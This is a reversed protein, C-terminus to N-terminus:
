AKGPNLVPKFEIVWVWPNAAWSGPGHITRWILAFGARHDRPCTSTDVKFDEAAQQTAVVMGTSSDYWGNLPSVGEAIADAETIDQLRECRLSVIEDTGRSAWAPLYRGLKYKWGWANRNAPSVVNIVPKQPHDACYHVPASRLPVYRVKPRGKATLGDPVQECWMWAAEKVRLHDGPQGYPSRVKPAGAGVTLGTSRDWWQTFGDVVRVGYGAHDWYMGTAPGAKPAVIRRTQTKLGARKAHIMPASYLINHIKTM